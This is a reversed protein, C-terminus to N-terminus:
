GLPIVIEEINQQIRKTLLSDFGITCKTRLNKVVHKIENTNIPEM